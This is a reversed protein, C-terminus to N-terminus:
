VEIFYREPAQPLFYVKANQLKLKSAFSPPYPESYFNLDETGSLPTWSCHIRIVPIKIVWLLKMSSHEIETTFPTIRKGNERIFRKKAHQFFSRIFFRFGLGGILIGFFILFEPKMPPPTQLSIEDPSYPNYHVILRDGEMVVAESQVIGQAARTTSDPLAYEVSVEYQGPGVTKSAQVYGNTRHYYEEPTHVSQMMLVSLGILIAGACLLLTYILRLTKESIM